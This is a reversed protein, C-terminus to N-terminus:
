QPKLDAAKVIRAAMDIESRLYANFEVSPMPMPEAGLKALKEVLEPQALAKVAEQQLRTVITAPTASPVVLAVWFTYDSGPVGAEVTTPVDPLLTSRKPTSVALAQLRGDRILPLASSLPAFFWDCRGGIVDSMAEPTGKFPVHVAQLGAQLRFKEANFHTASGVGASAYNMAGPKAKAAAVLDGVNKWGKAPSVVLVNPMAVLPTVGTLDRLTDYPLNPYISPNAAHGSSPVLVTYGDAEGRAVQAAALTGGAGPRNEVIVPQNLGKAMVEGVARAAIDTGSGASFPVILKIPKDPYGQAAVGSAAGALMFAAVGHMFTKM